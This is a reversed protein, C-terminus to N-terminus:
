GVQHAGPAILNELIDHRNSLSGLSPQMRLLTEGLLQAPRMDRTERVLGPRWDLTLAKVREREAHLRDEISKFQQPRDTEQSGQAETVQTEL